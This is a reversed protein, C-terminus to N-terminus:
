PGVEIWHVYDYGAAPPARISHHSNFCRRTPSTTGWQFTKPINAIGIIISFNVIFFGNLRLSISKCACIWAVKQLNIWCNLLANCGNWECKFPHGTTTSYSKITAISLGPQLSVPNEMFAFPLFVSAGSAEWPKYSVWSKCRETPYFNWIPAQQRLACWSNRINRYYYWFFLVPLVPGVNVLAVRTLCTDCLNLSMSTPQSHPMGRFAQQNGVSLRAVELVLFAM